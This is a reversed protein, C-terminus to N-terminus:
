RFGRRLGMRAGAGPHNLRKLLMQNFDRESQFFYNSRNRGLMHTFQEQYNKRVNLVAEDRSIPDTNPNFAAARLEKQYQYYVPWFQESESKSLNLRQSIFGIKLAEVREKQAQARAPNPEEQVPQQAMCPVLRIVTILLLSLLYKKM